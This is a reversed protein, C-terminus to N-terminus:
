LGELERAKAKAVIEKKEENDARMWRSLEEQTRYCGMCIDNEDLACIKICPSPVAQETM